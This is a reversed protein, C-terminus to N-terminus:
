LFLIFFVLSSLELNEACGHSICGIPLLSKDFTVTISTIDVPNKQDSAYLQKCLRACLSWALCM